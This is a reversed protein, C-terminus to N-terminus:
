LLMEEATANDPFVVHFADRQTCFENKWGAWLQTVQANEETLEIIDIISDKL